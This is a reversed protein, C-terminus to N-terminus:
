TTKENSEGESETKETLKVAMGKTWAKEITLVL